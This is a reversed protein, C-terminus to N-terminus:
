GDRQGAIVIKVVFKAAQIHDTGALKNEAIMELSFNPAAFQRDIKLCCPPPLQPTAVIVDVFIEPGGGGGGRGAHPFAVVRSILERELGDHVQGRMKLEVERRTIHIRQRRGAHRAIEREIHPDGPLEFIQLEGDDPLVKEVVAM